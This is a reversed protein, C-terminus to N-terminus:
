QKRAASVMRRLAEIGIAGPVMQKGVIFAPTGSLGLEKALNMNARLAKDVAPDAMGATLAAQDVGIEAAISVVRKADVSGPAMMLATHFALYKDKDLNWVALTARAATVSDPGLIPFEKLVYRVKTDSELFKLIMPTVRKCYGCRYDFFEVITVDGKPNGAVPSTPDNELEQRMSAVTTMAKDRRQQEDRAQMIKLAEVVIEPHERIYNSVVLEATDKGSLREDIMAEVAAKQVPTLVLLGAAAVSAIAILVIATLLRLSTM